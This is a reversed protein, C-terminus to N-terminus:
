RSRELVMDGNKRVWVRLNQYQWPGGPQPYLLRLQSVLAATLDVGGYRTDAGSWEVEKGGGDILIVKRAQGQAALDARAVGLLRRRDALGNTGGNIKRTIGELDDRDALANCAHREWYAGAVLASVDYRLLLEPQAVLDVGVLPGYLAYNARGTLQILGRGRFRHGDGPATNGLRGGYVKNALAVPNYACQQAVALTPFRNPWVQCLRQASYNLNEEQPMLASEHALQALFHAQRLTTTMGFQVAAKSLADAAAQPNPHRPSLKRILDPTIM